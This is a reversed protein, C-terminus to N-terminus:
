GHGSFSIRLLERNPEGSGAVIEKIKSAATESVTMM